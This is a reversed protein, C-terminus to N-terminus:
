ALNQIARAYALALEEKRENAVRLDDSNDIFFSEAIVAPMTTYRLFREGRGSWPTKVGRDPLHLAQVAEKQLAEALRKGARSLYIMETGTAKGDSANCHFEIALDAKTANIEEVPSHREKVRHVIVSEVSSLHSQIRRVLDRNWELETTGDHNEAGRDISPGHGIVLAIKM